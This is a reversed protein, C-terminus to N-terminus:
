KKSWSGAASQVYNGPATEEIAKKAALTEVASLSTGNKKAIEEYRAKRQANISSLLTSVEPSAASVAGLYGSRLEGVLGQKKADDLSIAFASSSALLVLTLTLLISRFFIRM